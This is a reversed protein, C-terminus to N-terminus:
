RRKREEAEAEKEEAYRRSAPTLRRCLSRLWSARVGYYDLTKIQLLPYMWLLSFIFRILDLQILATAPNILLVALAIWYGTRRGWLLLPILALHVAGLTLPLWAPENLGNQSAYILLGALLVLLIVQAYVAGPRKQTKM